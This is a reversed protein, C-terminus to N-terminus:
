KGTRAQFFGFYGDLEDFEMTSKCRGCQKAPPAFRSMAVETATVRVTQNDQCQSCFYPAMCSRIQGTGFM